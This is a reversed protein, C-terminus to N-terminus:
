VCPVINVYIFLQICQFVHLFTGPEDTGSLDKCSTGAWLLDIRLLDPGTSHEKGCKYCYGSGHQFCRVDGFVHKIHPHANLIFERKEEDLEAAFVHEVSISVESGPQFLCFM